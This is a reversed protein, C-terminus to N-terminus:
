IITSSLIDRADGAAPTKNCDNYFALPYVGDISMNYAFIDRGITNPKKNGNIDYYFLACVYNNNGDNESCKKATQATRFWM